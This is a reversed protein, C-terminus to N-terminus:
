SPDSLKIGFRTREEDNLGYRIIDAESIAVDGSNNARCNWGTYDCSGRACFFRGDKLRGYVIWSDGNNEGEQIQSISDVDERSFTSLSGSYSPPCPQPIIPFCNKSDGEGFVEAWDCNNLRAIM